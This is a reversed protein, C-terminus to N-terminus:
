LLPKCIFCPTQVFFNDMRPDLEKLEEREMQELELEYQYAAAEDAALEEDEM